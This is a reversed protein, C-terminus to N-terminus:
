TIPCGKKALLCDVRDKLRNRDKDDLELVEDCKGGLFDYVMKEKFDNRKVVGEEIMNKFLKMVGIGGDLKIFEQLVVETEKVKGQDENGLLVMGALEFIYDMSMLVEKVKKAAVICRVFLKQLLENPVFGGDEVDIFVGDYDDDYCCQYAILYLYTEVRSIILQLRLTFIEIDAMLLNAMNYLAIIRNLDDITGDNRCANVLADEEGYDLVGELGGTEAKRITDTLILKARDKLSMDRAMTKIKLKKM